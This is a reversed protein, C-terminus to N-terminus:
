DDQVEAAEIRWSLSYDNIHNKTLYPNSQWDEITQWLCRRVAHYAAAKSAYVGVLRPCSFKQDLWALYVITSAQGIRYHDGESYIRRRCDLGGPMM